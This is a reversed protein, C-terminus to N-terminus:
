SSKMSEGESFHLWPALYASLKTSFDEGLLGNRTDKYATMAGSKILHCLRKDAGTEGGIFPHASLAGDPFKPPKPVVIQLPQILRAKLDDLTDPVVFPSHQPPITSANPMPPLSSKGPRPLAKRPRQRLPEQSKRYTTFVDPLETPKSLGTDLSHFCNAPISSLNM